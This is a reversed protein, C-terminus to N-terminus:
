GAENSRIIWLIRAEGDALNRFWHPRRSDFQFADGPQLIHIQDDIKLEFRGQLVYGGKQGNRRWPDPGSGGGPEITLMLMEMESHGPPSLLEKTLGTKSFALTSRQGARTITGEEISRDTQAEFFSALPVGLAVRLRDLLKLSPSTKGREIHSLMGVSIQSRASLTALTLDREVRLNRIREGLGVLTSSDLEDTGDSM